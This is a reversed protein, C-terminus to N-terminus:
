FESILNDKLKIEELSHFYKAQAQAYQLGYKEKEKDLQQIKKNLKEMEKSLGSLENDKEKLYKVKQLLDEELKKNNNEARNIEKQLIDRSRRM